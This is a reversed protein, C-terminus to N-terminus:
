EMSKSKMMPPIRVDKLLSDKSGGYTKVVPKGDRSMGDLVGADVEDWIAYKAQGDITFLGFHNESGGPNAADKWIEDFGEFYFCTKGNANSWNSILDHYISEKFEDCAKSGEPGYHGNSYSAWGTEGIHVPKNPAIKTVYAETSNVQGVAYDLARKMANNIQEEETKTTDEPTLGWFDPNYHTDHMPYTHMSVYDVAKILSNLDEKHYDEAGGGWSAFNDSSTVWLSSSLEGKDKLGQVYNVWRLVVGPEVFYTAAWHVMCENGVALVKVIEPYEQALKIAREVEGQNELSDEQTHDPSDTFAGKCQIWAGLMVYMEFSDRTSKIEKIAKLVNAAHPRKTHYTRVFRYGLAHLMLMDEKIQEVTPQVDRTKERYGGYCIGPYEPNGLIVKAPKGVNEEQPKPSCALLLISIWILFKTKM